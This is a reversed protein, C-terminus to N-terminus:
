TSPPAAHSTGRDAHLGDHAYGLWSLERLVQVAVKIRESRAAVPEAIDFFWLM